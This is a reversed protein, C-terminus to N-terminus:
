PKLNGEEDYNDPDAAPIEWGFMSGALMAEVNAKSIGLKENEAEVDVGPAEWYGNYGRRLAIPRNDEPHRAYAAGPLKHLKVVNM